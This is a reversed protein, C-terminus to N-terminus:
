LITDMLTDYWNSTGFFFWNSGYIYVKYYHYKFIVWSCYWEFDEFM